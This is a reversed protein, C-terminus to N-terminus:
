LNSVNSVNISHKPNYFCNLLRKKKRLNLELLKEKRLLLKPPFIMEFSFYLEVVMEIEIFVFLHM